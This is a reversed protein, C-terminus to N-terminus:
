FDYSLRIGIADLAPNRDRGKIGANSIHINSLRLSMWRLNVKWSIELGYQSTFNFRTGGEPFPSFFYNPGVGNDYSLKINEKNLLHWAFWVRGGVGPIWEDETDMGYLHASVGISLFNRVQRSGRYAITIINSLPERKYERYYGISLNHIVTSDKEGQKDLLEVLGYGLLNYAILKNDALDIAGFDVPDKWDWGDQGDLCSVLLLSFLLVLTYRSALLMM